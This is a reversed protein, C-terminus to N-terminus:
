PMAKRWVKQSTISGDTYVTKEILLGTAYKSCNKGTIDFYEIKDITKNATKTELSSPNGQGETITWRPDGINTILPYTKINYTEFEIDTVTANVENTISAINAALVDDFTELLCNDITGINVLDIVKGTPVTADNSGSFICNKIEFKEVGDELKLEIMKRGAASGCNLVTCNEINAVLKSDTESNRFIAAPSDFFTSNTISVENVSCKSPNIQAYGASNKSLALFICNDIIINEIVSTKGKDARLAGRGYGSIDSNLLKFTGIKVAADNLQFFYKGSTEDGYTAILGDFIIENITVESVRFQYKTLTVNGPNEAKITVSKTIDIYDDADKEFLYDGDALIFIDGENAAEIAQELNSATTLNITEAHINLTFAFLLGALLTFQKKM